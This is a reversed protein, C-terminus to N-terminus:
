SRNCSSDAQLYGNGHREWVALQHIIVYKINVVHLPPGPQVAQLGLCYCVAISVVAADDHWCTHMCDCPTMARPIVHM